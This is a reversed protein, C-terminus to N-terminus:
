EVTSRESIKRGVLAFIRHQWRIPNRSSFNMSATIASRGDPTQPRPRSVLEFFESLPSSVSSRRVCAYVKTESANIRSLESPRVSEADGIDARSCCPPGTSSGSTRRM